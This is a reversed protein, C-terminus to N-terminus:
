SDFGYKDSRQLFAERGGELLSTVQKCIESDDISGQKDIPMEAGGDESVSCVGIWEADGFVPINANHTAFLFQRETKAARLEQVIREAIFANDLNDEPQDMILPDHNDLLLLHLIATCQQGTSLKNLPRYKRGEHAVNLEISIQDELDIHELEYVQQPTMRILADAAGATLGWQKRMLAKEENRIAAALGAITLHEADQVWKSKTEGIGPLGMLFDRLPTRLGDAKLEIRVKESLRRNLKQVAARKADTRASRIDSIEGLLNRRTQEIDAVLRSLNQLKAQAPKVEEIQRLLRQYTRGVEKGSKGAVAPLKSFENEIELESSSLAERLQHLLEEVQKEATSVLQEIELSKQSLQKKLKTLIGRGREIVARHPLNELVTDNLFVLDPLSEEFARHSDRVRKVEEAIRPGIQREKELLPLVELQKELGQEQFQKVQEELKPLREIREEVEEKRAQTKTLQETNEKLKQYGDKLKKDLDGSESLFRDLLRTRALEDRAIEHIENQGYIEVSPLLDKFPHLSSEKGKSDRVRPPEGYRRIVEYEKMHNKSSRLKLTVRGGERGLNEKVIEDGQRIADTSKHSVDLAYRICELVTSKGTGRGGIITNLHGSVDARFDDFYGGKISVSEIRSYYREQAEGNLRLRSQPDKFAMLFSAFCPSTMKILSTARSDRLDEPIVVDNANILAMHHDRKYNPDKNLAISKHGHDLDDVARPIQAALLLRDTWLSNFKGHLVGNKSTIHAAYCFGGLEGVKSLLDHGGLRSPRIGDDPDTLELTGLYRELQQETTGEPFLCVWHAKETTAIEFGPFVVVGAQELVNRLHRVDAVNGHDALGVVRIDESECANSVEQAFEEASLGHDKGRYKKSYSHTNVQLACKWFRAYKISLNTM